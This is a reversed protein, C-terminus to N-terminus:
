GVAVLGPLPLAPPAGVPDPDGAAVHVVITRALETLTGLGRLHGSVIRLSLM